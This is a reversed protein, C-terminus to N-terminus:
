SPKILCLVKRMGDEEVTELARGITFKNNSWTCGVGPINNVRVPEGIKIPGRIKVHVKGILAVAVKSGNEIEEKTAGYCAAYEDSIVGVIVASLGNSYAKYVKGDERLEVIDGPELDEGPVYGEALDAYAMNYVRDARIDGYVRLSGNKMSEGNANASGIAVACSGATDLLMTVNGNNDYTVANNIKNFIDNSLKESTVSRDKYNVTDITNDAIQKGTITGDVIHTYLISKPKIKEGYIEGDGICRNTVAGDMINQTAIANNAINYSTITGQAINGQIATRQGNEVIETMEGGLITYPAIKKCTVSNDKIKDTSVSNNAIKNETVCSDILHMTGISDTDMNRYQICSDALSRNLITHYAIKTAAENEDDVVCQRKLARTTISENGMEDDTLTQFQMKIHNITRDAIKNNIICKDSLDETLITGNMILETTVTNPVLIYSADFLSYTGSENSKYSLGGLTPNCKLTGIQWNSNDILNPNTITLSRYPAIVNEDLKKMGKM